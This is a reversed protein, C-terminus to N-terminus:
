EEEGKYYRILEAINDWPCFCVERSDALNLYNGAAAYVWYINCGEGVDPGTFMVAYGKKSLIKAIAVADEWDLNVIHGEQGDIISEIIEDYEM